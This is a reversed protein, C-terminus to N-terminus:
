NDDFLKAYKKLVYRLSKRTNPYTLMKLAQKATVWKFRDHERRDIHVARDAIEVVYLRQIAGHFLKRDKMYWRPWRYRIVVPTRVSKKIQHAGTEERLERKLCHAESEDPLLGGKVYEWGGWNQVRHLLLFRPEHLTRKFVVAAIYKRYTPM